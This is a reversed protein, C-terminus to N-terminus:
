SAVGGGFPALLGLGPDTRRHRWVRGDASTVVIADANLAVRRAGALVGAVSAIREDVRSDLHARLMGSARDRDLAVRWSDAFYLVDRELARRVHARAGPRSRELEDLVRRAWLLAASCVYSCPHFPVVRLAFDQLEWPWPRPAARPTAAFTAYRNATNDDRGARAAFHAVCCPPYGMLAGLATTHKSPDARQLAQAEDVAHLDYGAFLELVPEGARSREDWRDTHVDRSLARSQTVVHVGPGFRARTQDFEDLRVTLFVVPKLGADFALLETSLGRLPDVADDDFFFAAQPATPDLRLGIARWVDAAACERAHDFDARSPLRAEELTGELAVLDRAAPGAERAGLAERHAPPALALETLAELAVEAPEFPLTERQGNAVLEVSPAHDPSTRVDVHACSAGGRLGFAIEGSSARPEVLRAGDGALRHALTLASWLRSRADDAPLGRLVLNAHAGPAPPWIRPPARRDLMVCSGPSLATAPPGLLMVALSLSACAAVVDSTARPGGAVLVVDAADLADVISEADDRWVVEGVWHAALEYARSV